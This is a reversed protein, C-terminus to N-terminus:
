LDRGPIDGGVQRVHISNAESKIVVQALRDAIFPALIVNNVRVRRGRGADHEVVVTPISRKGSLHPSMIAATSM